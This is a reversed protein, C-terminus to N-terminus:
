VKEVVIEELPLREPPWMAFTGDGVRVGCCLSGYVYAKAHRLAELPSMGKALCAATAASLSCGTGHASAPEAVDPSRLQWLTGDRDCFWDTGPTEAGHGGKILVAAGFRAALEQAAVRAAQPTRVPHGCLVEAEPLNPTIVAALPLLERCLADVADDRLLRSGSTAVMVPDVVLPLRPSLVRLGDAVARIIEANLLMGTKVAGVAFAELVADMQARVSAPEAAQVSRVGRPNQATMATIVSTGFVDFYGFARLDAQVGAGGGSDSGAITLAVPKSPISAM